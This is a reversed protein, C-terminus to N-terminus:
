EGDRLQCDRDEDSEQRTRTVWEQADEGALLDPAIGELERWNDRRGTPAHSRQLALEHAIKEVLRMREQPPLSRVVEEYVEEATKNAM